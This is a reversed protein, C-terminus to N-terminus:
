VSLKEKLLNIPQPYHGVGRFKKTYIAKVPCHNYCTWCGCCKNMDFVPKPSCNIALYPCLNGCLGCETCLSEDVFKDGMEKRAKDSSLPKFLSDLIGVKIKKQHLEGGSKILYILNELESIFENFHIMEKEDPAKKNGMGRAIMPPYSEPTHLSHGAVVKFGKMEALESLIRLTRGKIFGYTNFVFAPKNNQQALMEMFNQFIYPIGSYNTFAAFGVIDYNELAPIGDSIIDFLEWEINRVKGAIYHCALRTNGSGSCYCIIGRM